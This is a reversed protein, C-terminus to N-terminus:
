TSRIRESEIWFHDDPAEILMESVHEKAAEINDYVGQRGCLMSEVIFIEQGVPHLIIMAFDDSTELGLPSRLHLSIRM